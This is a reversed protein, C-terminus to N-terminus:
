LSRPKNGFLVAPDCKCGPRLGPFYRVATIVIEDADIGRQGRVAIKTEFSIQANDSKQGFRCRYILFGESYEDPIGCFRIGPFLPRMGRSMEYTDQLGMSDLADCIDACRAMKLYEMTKKSIAM